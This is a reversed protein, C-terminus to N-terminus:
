ALDWDSYYLYLLICYFVIVKKGAGGEGGELSTTVAWIQNMDEFNNSIERRCGIDKDRVSAGIWSTIMGMYEVEGKTAKSGTLSAEKMKPEVESYSAQFHQM